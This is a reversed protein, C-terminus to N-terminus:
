SIAELTIRMRLRVRVHTIDMGLASAYLNTCVAVNQQWDEAEVSFGRM